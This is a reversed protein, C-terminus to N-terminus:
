LIFFLINKKLTLDFVEDVNLRLTSLDLDQTYRALVPYVM